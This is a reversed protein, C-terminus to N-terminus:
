ITKPLRPGGEGGGTGGSAVTVCSGVLTYSDAFSDNYSTLAHYDGTSDLVIYYVTNFINETIDV